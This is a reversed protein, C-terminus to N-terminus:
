SLRIVVAGDPGITRDLGEPLMFVQNRPVLDDEIYRGRFEAYAPSERRAEDLLASLPSPVAVQRRRIMEALREVRTMGSWEDEAEALLAPDTFGAFGFALADVMDPNPERPGTPNM